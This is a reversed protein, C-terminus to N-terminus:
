RDIYRIRYIKHKNDDTFLISGDPAQECDTPRGLVEDGNKLFNVIKQEGYPHGFEFLIRSVCYGVKQKANWGGKFAVFADGHADPIMKGQYFTMGNGSCHAPMVWEPIVNKSAMEILDPHDLYNLNPMNKGLIYPHGYFGGKVYHNLEAPPNHDTIPQGFKPHKSELKLALTDIDHDVGWVEDTGPRICLEETNRIGSAFLSKGSGDLNFTWIKK